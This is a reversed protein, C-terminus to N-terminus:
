EFDLALSIKPLPILLVKTGKQLHKKKLVQKVNGEGNKESISNLQNVSFTKQLSFIM